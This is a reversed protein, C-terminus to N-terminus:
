CVAEERICSRTNIVLIGTDLIIYTNGVVTGNTVNDM